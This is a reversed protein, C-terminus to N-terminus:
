CRSLLVAFHLESVGLQASRSSACRFPILLSVAVALRFQISYAYMLDHNIYSRRGANIAFDVAYISLVALVITGTKKQPCSNCESCNLDNALDWMCFEPRDRIVGCDRGDLGAGLPLGGRHHCWRGHVTKPTGMQFELPRGDRRRRAAHRTRLATWRDMGALHSEQDIRIQSSLTHLRYGAFFYM